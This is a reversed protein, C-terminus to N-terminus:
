CGRHWITLIATAAGAFCQGLDFHPKCFCFGEHFMKGDFSVAELGGHISGMIGESM